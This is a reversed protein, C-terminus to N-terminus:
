QRQEAGWIESVFEPSALGEGDFPTEFVDTLVKIHDLYFHFGAVTEEPRTWLVIKVLDMRRRQPVFRVARPIYNPIETELNRWGGYGLDGVKLTHVVGRYDRVQLELYYDYNSGWAWLDIALPRGPITIPAPIPNGEDDTEGLTPIFELFNYGRRTFSAQVGLVGPNDTAESEPLLLAEPKVGGEVDDADVLDFAFPFAFETESGEDEVALFKGGRVVWQYMGGDDFDELVVSQWNRAVEDAGASAALLLVMLISVAIGRRM